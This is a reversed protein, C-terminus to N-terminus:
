KRVSEYRYSPRNWHAVIPLSTPPMDDVIVLSAPTTLRARRARSERKRRLVLLEGHAAPLEAKLTAIEQRAEALRTTLTRVVNSESSKRTATLSRRLPLRAQRARLEDIRPRLEPHRYLFDTSVAAQSAVARFTIRAKARVLSRLAAEARATAAASKTQAAQRLTDIRSDASTMVVGSTALRSRSEALKPEPAVCRARLAPVRTPKWPPSSPRSLPSKRTASACGCTTKAWRPERWDRGLKAFRLFEAEHVKALTAAYHMTMEPSVHGLYRQVVPLPVGANLLETARSHRFRHTRQYDVLRCQADRIQLRRALQRLLGRLTNASYHRLGDRNAQDAM